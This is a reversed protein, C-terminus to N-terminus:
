ASRQHSVAVVRLYDLVEHPRAVHAFDGIGGTHPLRPVARAAVDGAERHLYLGVDKRLDAVLDVAAGRADGGPGRERTEFSSTCSDRPPGSGSPLSCASVSTRSAKCLAKSSWRLRSAPSM